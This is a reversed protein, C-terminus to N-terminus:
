DSAWADDAARVNAAREGKRGTTQEFQVRRENLQEDFELDDDLDTEHFFLDRGRRGDNSPLTIFGYGKNLYVATITGTM